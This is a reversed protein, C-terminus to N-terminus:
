RYLTGITEMMGGAAGSDWSLTCSAAQISRYFYRVKVTHYGKTLQIGSSKIAQMGHQGHNDIAQSGDVWLWSGDSSALQFMYTGDSPAYVYGSWIVCGDNGPANDPANAASFAVSLDTREGESSKLVIDNPDGSSFDSALADVTYYFVCAGKRMGGADYATVQSNVDDSQKMTTSLVVGSVAIALVMVIAVSMVTYMADAVGKDDMAM